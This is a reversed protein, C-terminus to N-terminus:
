SLFLDLFSVLHESKFGEAESNTSARLYTKTVNANINNGFSGCRVQIDQFKKLLVTVQLFTQWHVLGSATIM